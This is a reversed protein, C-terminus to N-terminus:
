FMVFCLLLLVCKVQKTLSILRSKIICTEIEYMFNGRERKKVMFEINEIYERLLHKHTDVTYWPNYQM